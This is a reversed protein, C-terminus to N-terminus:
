QVQVNYPEEPNEYVVELDLSMFKKIGDRLKQLNAPHCRIYTSHINAGENALGNEGIFEYDAWIVMNENIMFRRQLVNGM